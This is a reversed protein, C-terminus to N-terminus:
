LDDYYLVRVSPPAFYDDDDDDDISITTIPRKGAAKHSLSPPAARRLTRERNRSQPQSRQKSPSYLNEKEVIHRHVKAKKADPVDEEQADSFTVPSARKTGVRPRIAANSPTFPVQPTSAPAQKPKNFGPTSFSKLTSSSPSPDVVSLCSLKSYIHKCKRRLM